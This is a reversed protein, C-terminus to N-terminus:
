VVMWAGYKSGVSALPISLHRNGVEAWPVIWFQGEYVVVLVDIM